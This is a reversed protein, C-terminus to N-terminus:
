PLAVEGAVAKGVQRVTDASHIVFIDLADAEMLVHMEDAQEAGVLRQFRPHFLQQMLLANFDLGFFPTTFIVIKITISQKDTRAKAHEIKEKKCRPGTKDIIKKTEFFILM